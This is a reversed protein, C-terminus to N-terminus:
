KDIFLGLAILIGTGTGTGTGTATAPTIASVLVQGAAPTGEYVATASGTSWAIFDYQAKSYDWYKIQQSTIGNDIAHKIRDVGVYEWNSSNSQTTNASNESYKVLYNDFVINGVSATSSGKYGSVVFQNGLLNAAEKGTIDARTVGQKLSGFVIPTEAEVVPAMEDNVIIDDSTCGTFIAGVAAILIYYSKKM